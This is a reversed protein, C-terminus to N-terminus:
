FRYNVFRGSHNRWMCTFDERHGWLIIGELMEPWERTLDELSNSIHFLREIMLAIQFDHTCYLDIKGNEVSEPSLIFDLMCNLNEEIPNFGEIKEGSILRWVIHKLSLTKIQSNVLKKDAFFGDALLEKEVHITKTVNAGVLIQEITQICRPIHSSYCKGIKNSFFKGLCRAQVKGYESLLVNDPDFADRLPPRFSHRFCFKINLDSCKILELNNM